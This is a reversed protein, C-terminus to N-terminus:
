KKSKVRKTTCRVNQDQLSRIACVEMNKVQFLPTDIYRTLM